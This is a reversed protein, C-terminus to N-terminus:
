VQVRATADQLVAAMTEAPLPKMCYYGQGYECGLAQMQQLQAQTEIGSAVVQLKLQQALALIIQAIPNTEGDPIFSQVFTQPIKLFNLPFQRLHNLSFYGMGFEDISLQIGLARLEQLRTIVPQLDSVLMPERLELILCHGSLGTNALIHQVQEVFHPQRFQRVSLNVSLTLPEASPYDRKWEAMQRCAREFVWRGFPEMLGIEEAVPLFEEPPVLGRQPHHWRTLVEFGAIAGTRLNVISQFHLTFDGRELAKRFDQELNLREIARLHMMPNFVEYRNGGAAKARYMAIDADRLLDAAHQHIASGMVIGMSATICVERDGLAFPIQLVEIIRDAVNFASQLGDISELLVVFEDGGLRAAVDMDRVLAQLTQSVHVLLEDGALHGLSDNIVKFRDLDLFLVAFQDTPNRKLRKLALDLRETLLNRNPLGTLDDHLAKFRLTEEAELRATIARSASQIQMVGEQTAQVPSIVTELWIYHGDCHRIRYVLTLTQGSAIETRLSEQLRDRDEPHVLDLWNCGVLAEAEYGLIAQCSPSVYLFQGVLTHQCVLDSMNEALLRYLAERERLAAEAQQRELEAVVRSAFVSLVGAYHTVPALPQTNLICLHGLIDQRSSELRVGYYGDVNMDVLDQDDPFIQQIGQAQYYEGDRLVWECPTNAPDYEFNPLYEDDAWVALTQLRNQRKQTVVVRDVNLAKALHHVLVRFLEDGTVAATSAILNHLAQEVQKRQTVDLIVGDWICDGWEDMSFRGNAQVWRFQGPQCAMRWEFTQPVCNETATAIAAELPPVDDPHVRAWFQESDQMLLALDIGWPVSDGGNLSEIRWTGDTQIRVRGIVGPLSSATAQLRAENQQWARQIPQQAALDMSMCLVCRELESGPLPSLITRGVSSRRPTKAASPLNWVEEFVIEQQTALCQRVHTLLTKAQQPPLIETPCRGTLQELRCGVREAYPSNAFQYRITQDTQLKLICFAIACSDVLPDLSASPETPQDPSSSSDTQPDTM